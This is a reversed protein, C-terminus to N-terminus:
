TAPTYQKRMRRGLTGKSPEVIMFGPYHYSSKQFFHKEMCKGPLTLVMHGWRVNIILAVQACPRSGGHQGYFFHQFEEPKAQGESSIKFAANM